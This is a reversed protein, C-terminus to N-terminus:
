DCIGKDNLDSLIIKYSLDIFKDVQEKNFILDKNVKSNEIIMGTQNVIKDIQNMPIEKIINDLKPLPMYFIKCDLNYKDILYSNLNTYDNYIYKIIMNFPINVKTGDLKTITEDNIIESTFYKFWLYDVYLHIYYGLVFDDNLNNEYRLLFWDLRPIGIKDDSELFHSKHKTEGVLKSIDPAITGIFLKSKDKKIVKNIENAIAIHIISSAM